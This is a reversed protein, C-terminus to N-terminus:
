EPFAARLIDISVSSTRTTVGDQLWVNDLEREQLAALFQQIVTVLKFQCVFENWIKLHKLSRRLHKGKKLFKGRQKSPMM